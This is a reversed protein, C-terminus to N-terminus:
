LYINFTLSFRCESMPFFIFKFRGRIILNKLNKEPCIDVLILLCGEKQLVHKLPNSLKFSLELTDDDVTGLHYGVDFCEVMGDHDGEAVGTFM